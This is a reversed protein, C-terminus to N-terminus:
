CLGLAKRKERNTKAKIPDKVGVKRTQLEEIRPLWQDYLDGSETLLENVKLNVLEWFAPHMERDGAEWQKWSNVHAHVLEACLTKGALDSRLKFHQQVKRRLAVIETHNPSIAKTTAQATAISM